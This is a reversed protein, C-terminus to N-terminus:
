KTLYFTFCAFPQMYKVFNNVLSDFSWCIKEQINKGRTNM